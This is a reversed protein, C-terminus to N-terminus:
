TSPFLEAFSPRAFYFCCTYNRVAIEPRGRVVVDIEDLALLFCLETLQCPRSFAVVLSQQVPSFFGCGTAALFVLNKKAKSEGRNKFLSMIGRSM